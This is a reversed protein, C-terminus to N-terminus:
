GAVHVAWLSLAYSEVTQCVHAWTCQPIFGTYRCIKGSINCIKYKKEQFKCIEKDFIGLYFKTFMQNGRFVNKMQNKVPLANM